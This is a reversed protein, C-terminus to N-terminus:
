KIKDSIVRTILEFNLLEMMEDDTFIIDFEEELAVILSMHKLSDWSEIVSPDANDKIKDNTTEFIFAMLNRVKEKIENM